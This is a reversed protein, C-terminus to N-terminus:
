SNLRLQLRNSLRQFVSTFQAREQLTFSQTLWVLVMYAGIAIPIILIFNLGAQALVFIIVGMVAASAGLRALYKFGLGPGFERRFLFYFQVAGCLDTLVTAFSSGIMGFHPILIVNVAVNIIGLSFYIKAAANERRISTTLNGCFATYMVIPLDWIIIFFSLAAARNAVGYITVILPDALLMGGVAIPLGIFLMLKVSRYYWPYTKEPSTAHERALTPLIANNFARSITLFTLTLGYAINYWGIEADGRWSSLIVTDARFSFSLALQIAGFPLGAKLTAWWLSPNIHLHPPGIHNRRTVWLALVILIPINIFAAVILVIFDKSIFLFIAGAAIFIVQQIVEFAATIDM